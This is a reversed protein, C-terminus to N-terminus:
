KRAGNLPCTSIGFISYAPCNAALGTALPVLGVLGIWRMDGELLFVLSLLGLGAVIRAGRDISGVNHTM